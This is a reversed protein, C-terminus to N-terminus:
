LVVRIAYWLTQSLKYLPRTVTHASHRHEVLASTEAAPVSILDRSRASSSVRCETGSGKSILDRAVQDEVPREISAALKFHQMKVM